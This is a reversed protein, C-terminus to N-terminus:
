FADAEADYHGGISAYNYRLPTGGDPLYDQGYHIGGRTNYSTQIWLSPDGHRGSDIDEQEAKIVSTVRGDEVKAFHGM